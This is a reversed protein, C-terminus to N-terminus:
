SAERLLAQYEEEFIFRIQTGEPVSREEGIVTTKWPTEVVVKKLQAKAIVMFDSGTEVGQTREMVEHRFGILNAMFTETLLWAQQEIEEGILRIDENM